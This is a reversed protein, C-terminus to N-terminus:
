ALSDRWCLMPFLFSSRSRCSLAQATMLIPESVVSTFTYFRDGRDFGDEAFDFESESRGSAGSKDRKVSIIM